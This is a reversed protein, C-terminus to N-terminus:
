RTVEPWTERVIKRLQLVDGGAFDDALGRLRQSKEAESMSAEDRAFEELRERLCAFYSSEM